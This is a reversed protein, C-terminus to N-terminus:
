SGYKTWWKKKENGFSSATAAVLQQQSCAQRAPNPGKEEGRKKRGRPSPIFAGTQWCFFSRESEHQLHIRCIGNGSERAREGEGNLFNIDYYDDVKGM